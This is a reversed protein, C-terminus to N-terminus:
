RLRLLATARNGPVAVDEWLFSVQTASLRTLRVVADAACQRRRDKTLSATLQLSTDTASEVTLDAECDLSDLKMRGDSKGEDLDIEVTWSKEAGDPQVATGEWTGDFVPPVTGDETATPASTTTTTPAVTPGATAEASTPTPAGARGTSSSPGSVPTRGERGPDDGTERLGIVWIAVVAATVVALVGASRALGGKRRTRAARDVDVTGQGWPAIPPPAAGGRTPAQQHAPPASVPRGSPEVRTAPPDQTTAQVAGAHVLDTAEALVTTADSADREPVPRGLLLAVVQQATPRAAPDKALCRRLVVVLEAPVGVLEPEVSSIRHMVAAVHPAEFPARGTAAFAMVSAWAFLDTAPGVREGRLQEPAMYAPTGFVRSTVTTDTSLDRAIGFDIVRPGDVALMVNAPKFDRHVVGAQHIAALATATGIALRPLASGTIPGRREIRQQLSPGDIFESVVYPSPGDLDADLVQATCFPAVLRAASVEKVFQQRARDDQDDFRLQKIAVREGSPATALFVVGQGGAGLRRLVRYGAVQEPDGPRLDTADPV